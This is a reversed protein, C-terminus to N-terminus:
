VVGCRERSMTRFGNSAQPHTHTHPEGTDDGFHSPTRIESCLLPRQKMRLRSLMPVVSSPSYSISAHNFSLLTTFTAAQFCRVEDAEITAFNVDDAYAHTADRQSLGQEVNAMRLTQDLRTLLLLPSLVDGQPAGITTPPLFSQAM